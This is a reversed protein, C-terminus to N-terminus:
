ERKKPEERDEPAWRKKQKHSLAPLNCDTVFLKETHGNHNITPHSENIKTRSSVQRTHNKIIPHINRKMSQRSCIPYKLKETNVKINFIM